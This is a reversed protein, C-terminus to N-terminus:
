SAQEGVDDKPPVAAELDLFLASAETAPGRREGCDLIRLLRVQGAVAVTLVDGPGVARGPKDIRAGNVRVKRGSILAAALVRTKVLRAHWLWKDIRIRDEAM